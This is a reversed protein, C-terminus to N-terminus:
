GRGFFRTGPLLFFWEFVAKLLIVGLLLYGVGPVLFAAVALILLWLNLFYVLVLVATIKIDPYRDAKSAWRIRQQIFAGLGTAPDTEVIAQRSKLFGIRDPYLKQIKHLLLMDDGSALDDIGEFGGVEYFVKKEYALNAGNCMYHFKQDVSAGTIEQLGIFDLSQFVELLTAFFGKRNVTARFVVPAVICVAGTREYFSTIAQLWHPGATCDADTTLILSGRAENIAVEIARKKYSNERAGRTYDKLSLVRVQGNGMATAVAATSDTSHDDVVLIEFQAKPFDQDLLSQLCRGITQAENRAPIVVTVLVPVQSPPGEPETLERIQLWSSRYYLILVLYPLLLIGSIVFYAM